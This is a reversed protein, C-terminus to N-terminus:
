HQMREQRRGHVHVGRSAGSYKLVKLTCAQGACCFTDLKGGDVSAAGQVRSSVPNCLMADHGPVLDLSSISVDRVDKERSRTIEKGASTM